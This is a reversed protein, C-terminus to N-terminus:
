PLCTENVEAQKWLTNQCYILSSMLPTQSSMLTCKPRKIPFANGHGCILTGVQASIVIM